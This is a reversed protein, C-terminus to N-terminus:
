SHQVRERLKQCLERWRNLANRVSYGVRYTDCKPDICKVQYRQRSTFPNCEDLVAIQGGCTPCVRDEVAIGERKVLKILTPIERESHPGKGFLVDASPKTTTTTSM